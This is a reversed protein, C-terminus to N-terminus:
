GMRAPRAKHLAGLKGGVWNEAWVSLTEGWKKRRREFSECNPCNQWCKVVELEWFTTTPLKKAWFVSSYKNLFAQPVHANPLASGAKQAEKGAHTSAYMIFSERRINGWLPIEGWSFRRSEGMRRRTNIWGRKNKQCCLCWCTMCQSHWLHSVAFTQEHWCTFHKRM